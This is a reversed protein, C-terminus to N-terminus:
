GTTARPAGSPSDLVTVLPMTLASSRVTATGASSPLVASSTEATWVSAAILGPLLPPARTLQAASSTPTGVAPAVTGLGVPWDLGPFM